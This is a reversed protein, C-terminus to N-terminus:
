FDHLAQNGASKYSSTFVITIINTVGQM